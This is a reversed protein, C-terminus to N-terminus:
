KKGEKKLRRREKNELSSKEKHCPICMIKLNSPACWLRDVLEDWTLDELSEGLKIVPIIHDVQMKYAADIVGCERCWCWKTVRDRNADIHGIILSDEIVKRRLDSRSFVRRMAGKLLNREKPNKPNQM